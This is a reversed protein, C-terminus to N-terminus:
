RRDIRQPWRLAVDTQSRKRGATGGAFAGDEGTSYITFGDGETRYVLPQGTREDVPPTPTLDNLGQPLRGHATRWLVAACALDTADLLARRQCEMAFLQSYPPVLVRAILVDPNGAAARGRMEADLRRALELGAAGTSPATRIQRIHWLAYALNRDCLTSFAEKTRVGDPIKQAGPKHGMAKELAFLAPPGGARLREIEVSALVADSAASLRADGLRRRSATIARLDKALSPDATLIEPVCRLAIAECFNSALRGLVINDQDAQSAIVMARVMSEMADRPKGHAIKMRAEARLWRVGQRMVAYEPLPMSAGQRFDRAFLCGPHAAIQHLLSVYWANRQFATAVRAAMEPTMPESRGAGEVMKTDAALVSRRKIIAAWLPAADQGRIPAERQLEIPAIPVGAAQAAAKEDALAGLPPLTIGAGGSSPPAPAPAPPHSCGAAALLAIATLLRRMSCKELRPVRGRDNVPCTVISHRGALSRGSAPRVPRRLTGKM